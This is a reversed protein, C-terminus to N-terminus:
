AVAARWVLATLQELSARLQQLAGQDVVQGLGALLGGPLARAAEVTDDVPARERRYRSAWLGMCLSDGGAARADNSTTPRGPLTISM